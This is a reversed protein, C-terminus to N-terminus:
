PRRVPDQRSFEGRPVPKPPVLRCGNWTRRCYQGIGEGAVASNWQGLSEGGPEYLRDGMQPDGKVRAWGDADINGVIRARPLTRTLSM